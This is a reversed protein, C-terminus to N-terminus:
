IEIDFDNNIMISSAKKIDKMIPDFPFPVNQLLSM